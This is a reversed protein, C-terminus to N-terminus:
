EDALADIEAFLGDFREIMAEDVPGLEADLGDLFKRTRARELENRVAREVFERVHGEGAEAHRTADVAKRDGLAFVLEGGIPEVGAGGLMMEAADAPNVGMM